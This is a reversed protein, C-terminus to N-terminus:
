GLEFGAIAYISNNDAHLDKGRVMRQLHRSPTFALDRAIAVAGANTPLLDWSCDRDGATLTREILVRATRPSHCVSPGLYHSYRGPRTLCYSGNMVLPAQGRRALEELLESRDAGFARHDAMRWNEPLTDVIPVATGTTQGTGARTWREVAQEGRFGMKEYLPQGQDTADLKVTEIATRDAMSLAQTLLRRAFGRGRYSKKTLVMGVWALRRGYCLLTTTAALEGDVEIALCGEPALDMLMRWDAATQNWGAQESLEMAAPVDQASLRRLITGACDNM